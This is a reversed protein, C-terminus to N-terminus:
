ASHKKGRARTGFDLTVVWAEGGGFVGPAAAARAVGIGVERWSPSLLNRRHRPSAMWASISTAPTFTHSNDFLISEGVSWTDFGQSVYSRRIRDSFPTGNRSSHSFFGAALMAHSHRVAASQLGASLALPRLGHVARVANIELLFDRELMVLREARVSSREAVAPTAVALAILVAVVFPVLRTM